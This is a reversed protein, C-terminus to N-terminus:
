ARSPWDTEPWNNQDWNRGLIWEGTRTADVTYIRANHLILDPPGPAQALALGGALVVLGTATVSRRM